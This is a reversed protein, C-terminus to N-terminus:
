LARNRSIVDLFVDELTAQGVTYYGIGLREKESELADLMDVLQDGATTNVGGETTAVAIDGGSGLKDEPAIGESTSAESSSAGTPTKTSTTIQFRLQGRSDPFLRDHMTAGKFRTAVWDRVKQMEEATSAPGNALVIHVHYFGAGHRKTLQSTTDVTLLRQDIIATRDSLTSAEEMSHTTIIIARGACIARVAKWMVRMAVADMGTSPEDLLLVSPNGIIATALSLKRQNGGSLKGTMRKRYPMLGVADMVKLVNSHIDPVGRARAYFALHEHVTMLDM